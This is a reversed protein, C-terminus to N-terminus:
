FAYLQQVYIEFNSLQALLGSDGSIRPIFNADRYVPVNHFPILFYDMPITGGSATAFVILPYQGVVESGGAPDLKQKLSQGRALPSNSGTNYYLSGDEGTITSMLNVATTPTTLPSFPTVSTTTGSDTDFWDLEVGDMSATRRCAIALWINYFGASLKVRLTQNGSTGGVLSAILNDGSVTATADTGGGATDYKPMLNGQSANWVHHRVTTDWPGMTDARDLNSADKFLGAFEHIRAFKQGSATILTGIQAKTQYADSDSSTISAKVPQSVSIQSSELTLTTSGKALRTNGASDFSLSNVSLGGPGTITETTANSLSAGTIVFTASGAGKTLEINEDSDVTILSNVDLQDTTTINFNADNTAANWSLTGGATERLGQLPDVNDIWTPLTTASTIVTSGGYTFDVGGAVSVNGSSDVSFFENGQNDEVLVLNSTQNNVKRVRLTDKTQSDTLLPNSFVNRATGFNRVQIEDSTSSALVLQNNDNITYDTVPTQLVNNVTVIYFYANKSAPKPNTLTYTTSGLGLGGSNFVWSQSTAANAKNNVFVNDVFERTVLADNRDIDIANAVPYGQADWYTGTVDLSFGGAANGVEELEQLVFLVQKTQDNLSASSITSGDNFLNILNAKPTTRLLRVDNTQATTFDIQPPDTSVDITYENSPVDLATTKDVVSLHAPDLFDITINQVGSPTTYDQFSNAM